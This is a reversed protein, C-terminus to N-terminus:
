TKSWMTWWVKPSKSCRTWERPFNIIHKADFHEKFANMKEWMEWVKTTLTNVGFTGKMELLDVGSVPNTHPTHPKTLVDKLESKIANKWFSRSLSGIIGVGMWGLLKGSDYPKFDAANKIQDWLEEIIRKALDKVKESSWLAEMLANIVTDIGQEVIQKAFDINDMILGDIVGKPIQRSFTNETQENIGFM